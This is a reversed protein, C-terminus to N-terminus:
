IYIEEIETAAVAAGCPRLGPSPPARPEPGSPKQSKKKVKKLRIKIAQFGFCTASPTPRRIRRKSGCRFALAFPFSPVSHRTYPPPDAPNSHRSGSPVKKAKEKKKRM